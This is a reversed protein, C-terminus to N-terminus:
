YKKFLLSLRKMEQILIEPPNNELKKLQNFNTGGNQNFLKIGELIEMPNPEKSALINADIEIESFWHEANMKELELLNKVWYGLEFANESNSIKTKIRNKEEQFHLYNALIETQSDNFELKTETIEVNINTLLNYAIGIKELKSIKSEFLKFIPTKSLFYQKFEFIKEEYLDILDDEDLADDLQFEHLAETKTM